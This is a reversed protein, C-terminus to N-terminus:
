TRETAVRGRRNWRAMLRRLLIVVTLVFAITQLALAVLFVNGDFSSGFMAVAGCALVNALWSCVVAALHWLETGVLERTKPLLLRISAWLAFLPLLGFVAYTVLDLGSRNHRLSESSLSVLGVVFPINGFTTLAAAGQRLRLGTSGPRTM